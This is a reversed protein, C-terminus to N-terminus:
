DKEKIERVTKWLDVTAAIGVVTVFTWWLFTM